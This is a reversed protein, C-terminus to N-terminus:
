APVPAPEPEVAPPPSAPAKGFIELLGDFAGPEKAIVLPEQSPPVVQFPRSIDGALKSRIPNAVEGHPDVKAM